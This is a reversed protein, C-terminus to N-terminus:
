GHFPAAALQQEGGMFKISSSFVPDDLVFLDCVSYYLVRDGLCDFCLLVAMASVQVRWGFMELAGLRLQLFGKIWALKRSCKYHLAM